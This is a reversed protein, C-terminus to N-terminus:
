DGVQEPSAQTFFFDIVRSIQKYNLGPMFPNGGAQLAQDLEAFWDFGPSPLISYYLLITLPTSPSENPTRPALKVVLHVIYLKLQRTSCIRDAQCTLHQDQPNLSGGTQERRHEWTSLDRRLLHDSKM